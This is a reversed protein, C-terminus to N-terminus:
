PDILMDMSKELMVEVLNLVPSSVKCGIVVETLSTRSFPVVIGQDRVAGAWMYRIKSEYAWNPRKTHLIQILSSIDKLHM